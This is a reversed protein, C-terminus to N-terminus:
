LLRLASLILIQFRVQFFAVYNFQSLVQNECNSTKTQQTRVQNEYNSTKTQQTRHYKFDLNRIQIM